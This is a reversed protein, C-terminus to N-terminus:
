LDFVAPEDVPDELEVTLGALPLESRPANQLALMVQFVPNRSLSREPRVAEVVRDFPVDQHAFARLAEDRIEGFLRSLRYEPKVRMRLALTNVFFGILGELEAHQRNAIPTGIVVDDQGSLRSLLISWGGYLAMFLTVGHWQALRRLGATIQPDLVVQLTKGRYTQVAPRVGDAPLKLEIAAGELCERWYALQMDLAEGRLWDQQWRTYDAYQVALPTLPNEAGRHFASYIAALERCLVGMSWGDSVIHHITILLVHEGPALGILRGRVLPGTELDFGRHIEDSRHQELQQRRQRDDLGSLDVIALPFRAEASVQQRLGETNVVFTTRLTEHREMLVDLARQLAELDLPGHLRAILPIRYGAAGGELRDIFWLRQQAWSAPYLAREGARRAHRRIPPAHGVQQELLMRALEPRSKLLAAVRRKMDSSSETM